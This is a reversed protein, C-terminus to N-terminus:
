IKKAKGAPSYFILKLSIHAPVLAKKKQRSERGNVLMQEFQKKQGIRAPARSRDPECGHNGIEAVSPLIAPRTAALWKADPKDGVQKLGTTHLSDHSHIKMAGGDFTSKCNRQLM